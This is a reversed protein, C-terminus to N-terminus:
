DDFYPVRREEIRNRFDADRVESNVLILGYNDRTASLVASVAGQKLLDDDTFLWCDESRAMNVAKSYAEGFSLKIRLYVVNARTKFSRVIDETASDSSSDIIILEVEDTMQPVISELTQRIFDARNITCICISLRMPDM